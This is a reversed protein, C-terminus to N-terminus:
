STTTPSSGSFSTARSAPRSKASLPRSRASVTAGSGGVKAEVAPKGVDKFVDRAAEDTHKVRTMLDIGWMPSGVEEEPHVIMYCGNSRGKGFTKPEGVLTTAFSGDGMLLEYVGPGTVGTLERTIDLQYLKSVDEYTRQDRVIREGALIREREEDTLGLAHPDSIVTVISDRQKLDGSTRDDDDNPTHVDDVVESALESPSYTELISEALKPEHKLQRLLGAAAQKGMTGLVQPTTMVSRGTDHLMMAGVAEPQIWSEISGNSAQKALRQVISAVKLLYQQLPSAQDGAVKTLGQLLGGSTSPINTFLERIRGSLAGRDGRSRTDAEGLDYPTRNILYNTWEENLPVFLDADVAYIMDVGRLEGNVFFAPIYALEKGIKLGFIGVGRTGDDDKDLIQFGLVYDLLAPARDQLFTYALNSLQSEFAQEAVEPM